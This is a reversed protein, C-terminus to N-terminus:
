EKKERWAGGRAENLATEVMYRLVPQNLQSSLRSAAELHALLQAHQREHKDKLSMAAGAHHIQEILKLM